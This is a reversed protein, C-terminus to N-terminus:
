KYQRHIRIVTLLGLGPEVLQYTIYGAQGLGYVREEAPSFFLDRFVCM